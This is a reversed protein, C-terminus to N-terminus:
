RAPAEPLVDSNTDRPHQLRWKRYGESYHRQRALSSDLSVVASVLCMLVVPIAVTGIRDGKRRLVSVCLAPIASLAILAPCFFIPGMSAPLLVGLLFFMISLWLLAVFTGESM